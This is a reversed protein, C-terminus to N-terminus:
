HKRRGRYLVKNMIKGGRGEYGCYYAFQATIPVVFLPLLWALVTVDDLIGMLQIAPAYLLTYLYYWLEFDPTVIRLIVFILGPIQALLGSKLGRFKDYELDGYKVVNVDRMAKKYIDTYDIFIWALFTVVSVITIGATSDTFSTVIYFLFIYVLFIKVSVYWHARVFSFLPSTMMNPDKPQSM